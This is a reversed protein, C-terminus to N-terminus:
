ARGIEVAIGEATRPDRPDIMGDVKVPLFERGIRGDRDVVEACTPTALNLRAEALGEREVSPRIVAPTQPDIAVQNDVIPIL